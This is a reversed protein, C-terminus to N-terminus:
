RAVRIPVYKREVTAGATAAIELVYDGPALPALAVEAVLTNPTEGSVAVPISLATGRGDLLRAERTDIARTSQSEVRVREARTFQFGAVPTPAGSASARYVMPDLLLGGPKAAITLPETEAEEGVGQVRVLAQVEGPSTVPVTVVTARAGPAIRGRGSALTDGAANSLIVDVSAGQKWRGADVRAAPLEVVLSVSAAEARGYLFLSTSPRLRALAGMAEASPPAAPSPSTRAANLAEMEAVTPARYERRSRVEKGGKTRVSIRRIGGDWKNNTTYYGLLYYGSLDDAIRRMGERMDNTGTVAIGDTNEALTKLTDETREVAVIGAYTTPAALGQPSIPYFAVNYTRADRMLQRQRPAFDMSALRSIEANCRRNDLDSNNTRGMTLKGADTIGVPPVGRGPPDITLMPMREPVAWGDSFLLLNKREDRLAGLQLVLEELDSIVKDLHWRRFMEAKVAETANSVLLCTELESERPDAIDRGWTWHETLQQELILTKQMFRLDRAMMMRPTLVAFLDDAGLVGNVFDILPRNTRHSGDVEVHYVDLYIAFLRYRPDRALDLSERQSSPDRRTEASAGPGFAVYEFQEITQPKGDELVEFDSAAMGTVIKGNRQPYADVRVFHAGARFRPQQPPAQPAPQQQFAFMTLGVVTTLTRIALRLM